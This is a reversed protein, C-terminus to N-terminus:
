VLDTFAPSLGPGSGTNVKSSSCSSSSNIFSIHQLPSGSIRSLRNSLTCCMRLSSPRELGNGLLLGPYLQYLSKMFLCVRKAYSSLLDLPLGLAFISMPTCRCLLFPRLFLFSSWAFAFLLGSRFVLLFVLLHVHLCSGSM